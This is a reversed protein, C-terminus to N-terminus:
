AEPVATEMQELHVVQRCGGSFRGPEGCHGNRRSVPERAIDHSVKGNGASVTQGRRLEEKKGAFHRCRSRHFVKQVRKVAPRRLFAVGPANTETSTVGHCCVGGENCNSAVTFITAPM